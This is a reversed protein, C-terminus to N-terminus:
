SREGGSLLRWVFRGVDRPKLLVPRGPTTIVEAAAKLASVRQHNSADKLYTRAHHVFARRLAEREAQTLDAVVEGHAVEILLRYRGRALAYANKSGSLSEDRRRYRTTVRMRVSTKGGHTLRLFFERDDVMRHETSFGGIALAAERRLVVTSSCVFSGHILWEFPRRELLKLDGEITSCPIESVLSNGLFSDFEVSGERVGEQDSFYLTLDPVQRFAELALRLHDPYWVDDHDLTAVLPTEAITIGHNTAAGPGANDQRIMSVDLDPHEDAWARVADLTGDTSGDDVVIVAAPAVSQHAISDLTERIFSRGNWTPIVVSVTDGDSRQGGPIPPADKSNRGRNVKIGNGGPLRGM